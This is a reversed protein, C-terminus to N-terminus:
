VNGPQLEELLDSSEEDYDHDDPGDDGADEPFLSDMLDHEDFAEYAEDTAADIELSEFM